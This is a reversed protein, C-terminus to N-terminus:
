VSVIYHKWGRKVLKLENHIHARSGVETWNTVYLSTVRVSLETVHSVMQDTLWESVLSGPNVGVESLLLRAMMLTGGSVSYQRTAVIYSRQKPSDECGLSITQFRTYTIYNDTYKSSCCNPNSLSTVWHCKLRRESKKAKANTSIQPILVGATRYQIYQRTATTTHKSSSCCLLCDKMNFPWISQPFDPEWAPSTLATINLGPSGM